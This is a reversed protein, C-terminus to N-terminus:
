LVEVSGGAAKIAEEARDPPVGYKIMTDRMPPGVFVRMEERIQTVYRPDNKIIGKKLKENYMQNIRQKFVKEEDEYLKPYKFTTDLEFDEVSAAMVNTNEIATMYVNKPLAGQREFMEVLEDYSKYTLDFEDENTFVIHKAKQLISRCEAKYKNLNHTDTGAILPKNYKLSM